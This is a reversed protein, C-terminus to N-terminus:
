CETWVGRTLYGHHTTRHDSVKISPTVTITGDEHEEITHNALNALLSGAGSDPFFLYWGDAAKWFCLMSEDRGDYNEVRKGKETM